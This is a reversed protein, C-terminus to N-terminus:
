RRNLNCASTQGLATILNRFFLAAAKNGPDRKEQEEYMSFLRTLVHVADEETLDGLHEWAENSSSM